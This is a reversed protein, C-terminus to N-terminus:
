TTASAASMARTGSFWRVAGRRGAARVAQGAVLRSVGCHSVGVLSGGGRFRAAGVEWTVVCLAAGMGCRGGEGGVSWAWGM